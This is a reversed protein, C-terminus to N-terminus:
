RKYAKLEPLDEYINSWRPHETCRESSGSSVSGAPPDPAWVGGVQRSGDATWGWEFKHLPVWQSGGGSDPPRYMMYMKFLDNIAFQVEQYSTFTHQPSDDDNQPTPDGATSNAPYTIGPYTFEADLWFAGETNEARPVLAGLYWVFWLRSLNCLQTFTWEGAGANRFLAPTGVAGTFKMGPVVNFDPAGAHVNTQGPSYSIPGANPGFGYYPALITVEREATVTGVNHGNITARATCSVTVPSDEEKRWYWHPNPKGYEDDRVDRARGWSQDPGIDFSAFTDGPVSWNHDTLTAAGASLSGTVGQGVLVNDNGDADRTVGGLSLIVNHPKVSYGGGTYTIARSLNPDSGSANVSGSLTATCTITGSSGDKVTFRPPGSSGGAYWIPPTSYEQYGSGVGNSASGFALMENGDASWGLSASEEVIVVKPPHPAPDGNEDVWSLTATIDATFNMNSVNDGM